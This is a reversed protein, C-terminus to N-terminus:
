STTAIYAGAHELEEEQEDLWLDDDLIDDHKNTRLGDEMDQVVEEELDRSPLLPDKWPCAPTPIPNGRNNVYSITLAALQLAWILVDLYLVHTITPPRGPILRSRPHSRSQGVFDLILGQGDLSGAGWELLHLAIAVANLSTVFFALLLLSREPHIFGAANIQVM